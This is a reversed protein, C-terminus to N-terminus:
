EGGGDGGGGGEGGGGGQVGGGGEGGGGAQVGGGGEGGGGSDGGGGGQVGGGGEGGGGGQVGGGGEGGNGNDTQDSSSGAFEPNPNVTINITGIPIGGDQPNTITTTPSADPTPNLASPPTSGSDGNGPTSNDYPLGTPSGSQGAGGSGAGGSSTPRPSPSPTPGPSPTPAPSPTGGSNSNGNPPFYGNYLNSVDHSAGPGSAVGGFLAGVKGVINPDALGTGLDVLPGVGKAFLTPDNGPSLFSSVPVLGLVGPSSYPSLQDILNYIQERTSESGALVAIAGIAVPLAWAIGFALGIGGAIEAFASAEASLGLM